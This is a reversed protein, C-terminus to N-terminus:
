NIVYLVDYFNYFSYLNYVLPIGSNNFTVKCQLSDISWKVDLIRLRFM